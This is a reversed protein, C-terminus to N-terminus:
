RLLCNLYNILLLFVRNEVKQSNFSEENSCVQVGKVWPRKTDPKHFKAWHCFNVVVVVIVVVSLPCIKILFVCKLRWILHALFKSNNTSLSNETCNSQGNDKWFFITHKNSIVYVFNTKLIMLQMKLFVSLTFDRGHIFIDKNIHVLPNLEM